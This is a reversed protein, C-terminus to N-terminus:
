DRLPSPPNEEKKPSPPSDYDVAAVPSTRSMSADTHSLISLSGCPLRTKYPFGVVSIPARSVIMSM